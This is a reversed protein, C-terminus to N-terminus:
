PRSTVPALSSSPAQGFGQGRSRAPRKTKPAELLLPEGSTTEHGIARCVNPDAGCIPCPLVRDSMIAALRALTVPDDEVPMSQITGPLHFAIRRAGIQLSRTGTISDDYIRM